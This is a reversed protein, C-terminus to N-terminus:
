RYDNLLEKIHEILLQEGKVKIAEEILEMLEVSAFGCLQVLEGKQFHLIVELSELMELSPVARNNELKSIYTYDVGVKYSLQRQSLGLLCRKFKIAESLSNIKIEM